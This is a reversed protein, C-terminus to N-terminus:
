HVHKQKRKKSMPHRATAKQLSSKENGAALALFLLAFFSLYPIYLLVLLVLISGAPLHLDKSRRIVIYALYLLLPLEIGEALRVYSADKQLVQCLAYIVITIGIRPCFANRSM